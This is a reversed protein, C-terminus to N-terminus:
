VTALYLKRRSATADSCMDNSVLRPRRCMVIFEAVVIRSMARGEARASSLGVGLRLDTRWSFDDEGYWLWPFDLRLCRSTRYNTTTALMPALLCCASMHSM